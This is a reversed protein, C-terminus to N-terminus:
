HRNVLYDMAEQRTEFKPIERQSFAKVAEHLAKPMNGNFVWASASLHKRVRVASVKVREMAERSIQSGTFDALLLVTGNPEQAALPLVQDAVPGIEAASLNSADVLLIRHNHHDIFRIRKM